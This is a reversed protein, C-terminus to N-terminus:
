QRRSAVEGSLPRALDGKDEVTVDSFGLWGAMLWLEDALAAATAGEDISKEKWAARVLLRSSGRDSKLDVRAAIRDGLLFPLVYYGYRRKEKPTYIEIRYTFDFLREGRPRFWVLPDFPSLLARCSARAPRVHDRWLWAPRDWGEVAVPVLDGAEELEAIRPRAQAPSLRFYDRLDTETAVGLSAASLRILERHADEPSPSPVALVDAPLVREPVDYRREFNVRTASTVEGIWFLWEMAIKADKWGWWPGRSAGGDEIDGVRLPGEARVTDLVRQVFDAKERSFRHLSKWMGVGKRAEAMRWRLLPQIDHPLISAEHAWYEFYGRKRPPGHVADDILSKRYDGLRAFLPLYHSRELVNVSDIQLLQMSGIASDLHRRDPRRRGRQSPLFGQAALAIRRAQRIGIKEM